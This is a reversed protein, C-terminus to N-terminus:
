LKDYFKKMYPKLLNIVAEFIKDNTKQNNESYHYLIPHNPEGIPGEALLGTWHMSPIFETKRIENALKHFKDFDDTSLKGEVFIWTGGGQLLDKRIEGYFSGDPKIGRLFWLYKPNYGHYWKLIYTKQTMM